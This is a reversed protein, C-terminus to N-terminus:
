IKIRITTGGGATYAMGLALLVLTCWLTVAIVTAKAKSTGTVVRIGLSLVVIYWILFVSTSHLVIALYLNPDDAGLLLIDLGVPFRGRLPTSYDGLIKTRILLFNVLEGLLFIVGCHINVSYLTKFTVSRAKYDGLIMNLLFILATTGLSVAGVILPSIVAPGLLNAGEFAQSLNRWCGGLWVLAFFGVTNLLLACCWATNARINEFTERPVAFIDILAKMPAIRWTSNNNRM